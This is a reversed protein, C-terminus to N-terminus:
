SSHKASSQINPHLCKMALIIKCEQMTIESHRDIKGFCVSGHLNSTAHRRLSYTWNSNHRSKTKAKDENPWEADEEKKSQPPQNSSTFGFLADIKDDLNGHISLDGGEVGGM